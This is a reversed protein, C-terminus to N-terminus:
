FANTRQLVVRCTMVLIKLDLWISWREIYEIDLDVRRQLQLATDTAGRAGNVQAWGTIGPKVRHRHPYSDTIETGLRDETRMSVAHPRPGVLSMDGALVNFLQPLEDLSTARLFRGLRTIRPDGRTTQVLATAASDPAWRMSRFKYIDFEANNLGHRRQRFVVPGPSDIRIALAVLALLPLLLLTILGGLAWDQLAKLVADRHRIPRDALLQVAMGSALRAGDRSGGRRSVPARRLETPRGQMVRDLGVRLLSTLVLSSAAWLGLWVPRIGDLAGSFAAFVAVVGGFALCRLLHRRMVAPLGQPVAASGFHRDYLLFPAVGILMWPTRSALMPHLGGDGSGATGLPELVHALLAAALLCAVDCLPLLDAVLRARDVSPQAAPPLPLAPTSPM